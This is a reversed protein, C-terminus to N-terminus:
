VRGGENWLIFLTHLLIFLLSIIGVGMGVWCVKVLKTPMLPIDANAVSGRGGTYREFHEALQLSRVARKEAAAADTYRKEHTPLLKLALLQGTSCDVASLIFSTGEFIPGSIALSLEDRM